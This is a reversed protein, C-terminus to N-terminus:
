NPNDYTKVIGRRKERLSEVKTRRGHGFKEYFWGGIAMEIHPNIDYLKMSALCAWYMLKAKWKSKLMFPLNHRGIAKAFERVAKKYEKTYKFFYDNQIYTDDWLYRQYLTSMALPNVANQYVQIGFNQYDPRLWYKTFGHEEHYDRYIQTGPFPMLGGSVQYLSVADWTKKLFEINNKVHSVNEWPFGTMMCGYVELGARHAMWPAEINQELTVMKRIKELTEPDGNELGFAISHCGADKMARFMDEDALNARSNARWKVNLPKIKECFEYVRSKGVTFCDDAISFSTIGYEDRRRKIESIIDDVPYFRFNQKFVQWDCFTCMGPCGRSTYIRHFGRILGTEDRFQEPDFISLDPLHLSQLDVPPERDLIGRKSTDKLWKKLVAEGEGVVVVDAGAEICEEPCDTPHPGGVIVTPIGINKLARMLKYTKNVEFTLMNIGVIDAGACKTLFDSLELPKKFTNVVAEVEYGAEKFIPALMALPM